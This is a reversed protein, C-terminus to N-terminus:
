TYCLHVFTALISRIAGANVWRIETRDMPRGDLAEIIVIFAVSYLM